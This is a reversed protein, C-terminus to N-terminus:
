PAAMRQVASAFFHALTSLGYSGFFWAVAVGALLRPVFSMAPDNIQTAAQLVGVFLGVVLLAAFFPGGVVFLLTFAERM